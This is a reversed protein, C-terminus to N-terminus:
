KVGHRLQHGAVIVNDAGYSILQSALGSVGSGLLVATLPVGLKDAIERGKGTLELSVKQVIGERQEAFVWVGKYDSKNM